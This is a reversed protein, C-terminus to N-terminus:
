NEPEKIKLFEQHLVKIERSKIYYGLHIMTRSRVLPVAATPIEVVEINGTIDIQPGAFLVGLLALRGLKANGGRERYSGSISNLLIPSGSSGPFAAIDVCGMPKGDFDVCPHSATTGARLLPYNNKEDWLGTPYGVMTVEELGYLSSLKQDSLIHSFDLLRFFVKKGTEKEIQNFWPGVMIACLDVNIDQHNIVVLNKLEFYLRVPVTQNKDEDKLHLAANGSVADQLVHKNTILCPAVKSGDRSKFEFFFGTGVSKNQDKTLCEIRATIYFLQDIDEPPFKIM